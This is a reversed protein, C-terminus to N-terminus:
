RRKWGKARQLHRCSSFPNGGGWQTSFCQSRCRCRNAHINPICLMFCLYCFYSDNPSPTIALGRGEDNRRLGENRLICVPLRYSQGIMAAMELDERYVTSESGGLPTAPFGSSTPSTLNSFSLPLMLYHAKGPNISSKHCAPTPFGKSGFGLVTVSKENFPTNTRLSFPSVDPSPSCPHLLHCTHLKTRHLSRYFVPTTTRRLHIIPVPLYTIFRAAIQALSWLISRSGQSLTAM